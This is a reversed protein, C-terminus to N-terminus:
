ACNSGLLTLWSAGRPPRLGPRIRQWIGMAKPRRARDRRCPPPRPERARSAVCLVHMGKEEGKATANIACLVPLAADFRCRSPHSAGERSTRELGSSPASLTARKHGITDQVQGVRDRMKTECYGRVVVCAAVLSAASRRSFPSKNDPFFALCTGNCRRSSFLGIWVCRFQM